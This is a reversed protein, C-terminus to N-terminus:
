SDNAEQRSYVCVCVCVYIYIYITNSMINCKKTQSKIRVYTVAILKNDQFIKEKSWCQNAKNKKWQKSKLIQKRLFKKVHRGNSVLENRKKLM